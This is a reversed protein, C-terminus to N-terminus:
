SVQTMICSSYNPVCFYIKRCMICVNLCSETPKVRRFSKIVCPVVPGVGLNNRITIKMVFVVNNRVM